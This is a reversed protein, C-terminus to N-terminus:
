NIKIVQAYIIVFHPFDGMKQIHGKGLKVKYIFYM